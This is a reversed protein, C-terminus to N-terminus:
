SALAEKWAETLAAYGADDDAAFGLRLCDNESLGLKDAMQYYSGYRHSHSPPADIQALICGCDGRGRQYGGSEMKIRTRSVKRRWSGARRDLFEIGRRVRAAATRKTM